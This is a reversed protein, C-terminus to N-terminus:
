SKGKLKTMDLDEPLEIAGSLQQAQPTPDSDPVLRLGKSPREIQDEMVDFSVGAARFAKKMQAPSKLDEKVAERGIQSIAIRQAINPARWRRHGVSDVLKYGPIATGAEMQQTAYKILKAGHASVKYWADLLEALKVATMEGPMDVREIQPELDELQQNQAPCIAHASCFQCWVGAKLSTENARIREYTKQFRRQMMRLWSVDTVWTSILNERDRFPQIIIFGIRELEEYFLGQELAGVAYFALQMNEVPSVEIGQGFKIDAVVGLKQELNGGIFDATGFVRKDCSKTLAVPVEFGFNRLDWSSIVGRIARIAPQALGRIDDVTIPVERGEHELTYPQDSIVETEAGEAVIRHLEEGKIAFDSPSTEPMQAELAASGTCHVRREASSGGMIASHKM